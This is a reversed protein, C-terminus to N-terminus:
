LTINRGGTAKAIRSPPRSEDCIEASGAAATKGITTGRNGACPRQRIPQRPHRNGVRRVSASQGVSCICTSQSACSEAAQGADRGSASHRRQSAPPKAPAPNPPNSDAAQAGPCHGATRLHRKRRLRRIPSTRGGAGGNAHRVQALAAMAGM